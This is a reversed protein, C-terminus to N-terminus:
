SALDFMNKFTQTAYASVSGTIKGDRKKMKIDNITSWVEKSDKIGPKHILQNIINSSLGLEGLRDQLRILKEDTNKDAVLPALEDSQSELDKSKNEVIIFDVTIVSRGKRHEKLKVKLGTENIEELAPSIVRKKFDNYRPYKDSLGLINKLDEVDIRNVKSKANQYQRILLYIRQTNISKFRLMECLLGVTFERKLKLLEPKLLHHLRATIYGEREHYVPEVLLRIPATKNGDSYDIKKNELSMMDNKVQAYMNKESKPKVINIIDRVFMKYTKFQEDNHEIQSVLMFFLRAENLTLNLPKYILSNAIAITSNDRFKAERIENVKM